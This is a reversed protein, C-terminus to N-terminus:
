TLPAPRGLAAHIGAVTPADLSLGMALNRLFMREAEDEARITALAATYVQARAADATDRALAFPDLPAAMEAEVFAIEEPTADTLHDMVLRREEPDITGDAKAAQIMARIMLRANAELTASAATTGTAQDMMAAANAAGAAGLGGLAALAGGAGAGQGILGELAQAGPLGMKQMMDRMQGAAGAVAPNAKLQDQVGALGGGRRVAELGKAAAFGAALTVLTRVFSM